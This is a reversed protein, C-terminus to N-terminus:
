SASTKRKGKALETIDKIQEPTFKKNPLKPLRPFPSPRPTGAEDAAYYEGFVRKQLENIYWEVVVIIRTYDDLDPFLELDTETNTLPFGMRFLKAHCLEHHVSFLTADPYFVIEVQQASWIFIEARKGIRSTKEAYRVNFTMDKIHLRRKGDEIAQLVKGRSLM